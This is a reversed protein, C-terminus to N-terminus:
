IIIGDLSCDTFGGWRFSIFMFKEEKDDDNGKGELILKDDGSAAATAGENDLSDGTNFLEAATDEM